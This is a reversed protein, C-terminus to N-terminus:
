EDTRTNVNDHLFQDLLYGNAGHIEVGDFGAELANKAASVFDGKIEQMEGKTMQRPPCDSYLTGDQHAGSIPITTCSIPTKGDLVSSITARGVHWIQCVIKGGKAHVADTVRKWGTIQSATFIGPVKPYGCCYKSISTAETIQLGGKSARQGYYEVMLDGPVYVHPVEEEARMRTLPAQIVRHELEIAGVSLPTFLATSALPKFGPPTVRAPMEDSPIASSSDCPFLFQIHSYFCVFPVDM